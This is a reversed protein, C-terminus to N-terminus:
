RNQRASGGFPLVPIKKVDQYVSGITDRTWRSVRGVRATM